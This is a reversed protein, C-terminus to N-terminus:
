NAAFVAYGLSLICLWGASFLLPRAPFRALGSIMGIAHAVRICLFALSTWYTLASFGDLLALILVLAAFPAFQEMLNLHARHARHVWPRMQSLDAPRLFAAGDDGPETNVGIIYPIWMSAAFLSLCTLVGLETSFAIM